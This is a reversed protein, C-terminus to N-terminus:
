NCMALRRAARAAWSTEKSPLTRLAECPPPEPAAATKQDGGSELPLREMTWTRHTAILPVRDTGVVSAQPRLSARRSSHRTPLGPACQESPRRVARRM